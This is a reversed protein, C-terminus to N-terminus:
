KGWSKPTRGLFQNSSKDYIAKQFAEWKTRNDPKYFQFEVVGNDANKGPSSAM